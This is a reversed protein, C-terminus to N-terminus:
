TLWSLCPKGHKLLYELGAKIEGVDAKVDEVGAKVEGVDVKIEDVGAKVEDDETNVEVKM